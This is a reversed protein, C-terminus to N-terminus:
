SYVDLNRSSFPRKASNKTLQIAEENENIDKHGVGVDINGSTNRGTSKEEILYGETSSQQRVLM